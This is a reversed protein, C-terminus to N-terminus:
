SSTAREPQNPASRQMSAETATPAETPQDDAPRRMVKLIEDLEWKHIYVPVLNYPDRYGGCIVCEIGHNVVAEPLPAAPTDTATSVAIGAQAKWQAIWGRVVPASADARKAADLLYRRHGEDSCKNLEKATSFSIRREQLARYVEPDGRLLNLREAIYNPTRRFRQVLGAEDLGYKEQAQAFLIAEEAATIDEREVNEAIMAAGDALEKSSFILAPITKWRLDQAALFRRHGFEIEYRKGVHKLGIPQLLGINHMSERLDSMKQDDMAIRVPLQPEDILELSINALKPM